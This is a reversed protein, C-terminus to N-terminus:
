PSLCFVRIFIALIKRSRPLCLIDILVNSPHPPPVCSHTRLLCALAWAFEREAAMKLFFGRCFKFARRGKGWGGVLKGFVKTHHRPGLSLTSSDVRSRLLVSIGHHVRASKKTEGRRGLQVRACM